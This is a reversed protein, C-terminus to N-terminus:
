HDHIKIYMFSCLVIPKPSCNLTKPNKGESGKEKLHFQLGKEGTHASCMELVVPKWATFLHDTPSTAEAM